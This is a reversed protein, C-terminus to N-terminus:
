LSTWNPEGPTTRAVSPPGFLSCNAQFQGCGPMSITYEWDPHAELAHLGAALRALEAVLPNKPCQRVHELMAAAPARHECHACIWTKVRIDGAFLAKQSRRRPM